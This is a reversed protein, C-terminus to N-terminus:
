LVIAWPKSYSGTTILEMADKAVATCNFYTHAREMGAKAVAKREAEHSLYYDVLELCEDITSFYKLHKGDAFLLESDPVYKALVMTGCALYDIFRNSHYLQVDNFENISVGIKAGSIAHLYDIGYVKPNGLDGWITLGKERALRHILEARMPDQGPMKRTVQGTFLLESTWRADVEYHCHLDPDCPYPMYACKKVGADRYEKLNRGASASVFIDAHRACALTNPDVSASLSVSWCAIIADPAALKAQVVLNEDLKRVASRFIIVDPKYNRIQSVMVRLANKKGISKIFSCYNFLSYQRQIDRYSFPFVDHGLRLLGKQLIHGLTLPSRLSTEKFDEILYIRM